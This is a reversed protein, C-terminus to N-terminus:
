EEPCGGLEFFGAMSPDYQWKECYGYHASPGDYGLRVQFILIKTKSMLAKYDDNAVQGKLSIYQGPFMTPPSSPITGSNAVERGGFWAKPSTRFNTGPVPGFNKIDIQYAMGDTKKSPRDAVVDEGSDSRSHYSSEVTNIGIYPRQAADFTKQALKNAELMARLQFCAVTTYGVVTIVAAVELATKWWPTHPYKCKEPEGDRPRSPVVDPIIPPEKPTRYGEKGTDDKPSILEAFQKFPAALKSFLYPVSKWFSVSKDRFFRLWLYIRSFLSPETEPKLLYSWFGWFPL